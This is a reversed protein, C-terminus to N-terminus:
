NSKIIVIPKALNDNRFKTITATMTKPIVVTFGELAFSEVLDNAYMPEFQATTNPLCVFISREEGTLKGAKLLAELGRQYPETTAVDKRAFYGATISQHNSIANNAFDLFDGAERYGDTNSPYMVIRNAESTLTQWRLLDIKPKFVNTKINKYYLLPYLDYVQLGLCAALIVTMYAKKDINRYWYVITATIICYYLVWAFRGTSRFAACLFAITGKVPFHLLIHSGFTIKNSLAFIFLLVTIIFLPEKLWWIADNKINKLTNKSLYVITLLILLVIIGGGLYAYGEYQGDVAQPLAYFLKTRGLSNFFTNFNASFYGYGDIELAKLSIRFNGFIYWSGIIIPASIINYIIFRLWSISGQLRLKLYTAFSLALVALLLYQHISITLFIIAFHHKFKRKKSWNAVYIWLSWLILWHACLSMHVTRTMLTTSFLLFMAGFVINITGKVKLSELLKVAFFSQLLYCVLLWWGFYQFRGSTVANAIFKMPIAIIPMAGTMGVGTVTPYAYGRLTGIIPLEWPTQRFFEWSLYETYNDVDYAALWEYQYFNLVGWGFKIYFVLLAALLSLYLALRNSSFM